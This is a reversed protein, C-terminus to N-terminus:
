GDEFEKGGGGNELTRRYRRYGRYPFYASLFGCAVSLAVSALIAYWPMYFIYRVHEGTLHPMVVNYVLFLLYSGLYSLGVSVLLSMVAMSLGGQLYIARIERLVAGMAQLINFENERKKYYLAQSFFWVLPSICLVLLSAVIYLEGYHKERSVSANLVTDRNTVDIDGYYRAWDKLEGYLRNTESNNFDSDVYVNLIKGTPTKGTVSEYDSFGMYVPLSDCPVDYIVAGITFERYQFRFYKIQEQLLANGTRQTDVARVQGTKEAIYIKDGVRFDIKRVNSVSDGVIVYGPTNICDLDGSYTYDRLLGLQDDNMATYVVSNTVNLDGNKMVVSGEYRITGSMFLARSSDFIVHSSLNIAETSNDDIEVAKVGEMSNLENSFGADYEFGSDTLDLVFQPRPYELNTNYIDAMYLGMIFVACFVIATTLLQAEYKRFRWMSYFEYRRPFKEGFISVSSRPSSVLNSNDESIIMSMPKKIAMLKMPTWVAIVIVALSFLLTKLITWGNFVFSQTTDKFIFYSVVTSIGMSPIFTVALIVFMEWFAIGFLMKFDAGFTLYIGYQFKYQNLRIKYLSNLLFSCLVLLVASIIIFTFTNNRISDSFTVLPSKFVTYENTKYLDLQKVYKSEFRGLSFDTSKIFKLFLDFREENAVQNTYEDMRVLEYIRDSKYQALDDDIIFRMQDYNLNTLAIDYDYEASYLDHEVHSNNDNSVSVMGFLVQVIILAIFFCLYQRFGHFVSKWAIKLNRGLYEFLKSM